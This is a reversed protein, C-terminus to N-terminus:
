NLNYFNILESIQNEVNFKERATDYAKNGIIKRLSDDTILKYLYTALEDVNESNFVYGSENHKITEPIGGADSGILPLKRSAAEITANGLGEMRSPQVYIDFAPLVELIDFRRGMFIVDDKLGLEEVLELLSQHYEKLKQSQVRIGGIHCFLVNNINYEKKVKKIAKIILDIGKIYEIASINSIIVKNQPLGLRMRILSKNEEYHKITIGNYLTILNNSRTMKDVFYCFQKKVYDSVFFIKTSLLFLIYLYSRLIWFKVVGKSKRYDISDDYIQSRFHIFHPVRQLKACIASYLKIDKEFHAHSMIPNLKKYLKYIAGFKHIFGHNPMFKIIAGANILDKELEPVFELSGYYVFVAVKGNRSLENALSVCFVDFASYIRPEYCIFQLIYKGVM